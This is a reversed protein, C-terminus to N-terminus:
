WIDNLYWNMFYRTLILMFLLFQGSYMIKKMIRNGNWNYFACYSFPIMFIYMYDIIRYASMYGSFLVCLGLGILYIMSIKNTIKEKSKEKYIFYGNIWYAIYHILRTISTNQQKDAKFDYFGSIMIGVKEWVRRFILNQFLYSVIILVGLLLWTNRFRKKEFEKDWLLLVIIPVVGLIAFRHISFAVFFSIITKFYKKELAFYSAILLFTLSLGSRIAVFSYFTGIYSLFIGFFLLFSYYTNKYIFNKNVKNFLYRSFKYFTVVMFLSILVSFFRFSVGISRFVVVLLLFGYEMQTIPERMLLNANKLFAWKSINFIREYTYTDRFFYPRNYVLILFAIVFIVGIFRSATNNIINNFFVGSLLILSFLITMCLIYQM